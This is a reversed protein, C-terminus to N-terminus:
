GPIPVNSHFLFPDVLIQLVADAANFDDDDGVEAYGGTTLLALGSKPLFSRSFSNCSKHTGNSM